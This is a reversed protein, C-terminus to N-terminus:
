EDIIERGFDTQWFKRDEPSLANRYDEPTTDAMLEEITYKPKPPAELIVKNDQTEIELRSGEKLGLKAAIDKPIRVGLSNGWKSVHVQM